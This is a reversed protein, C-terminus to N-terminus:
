FHCIDFMQLHPVADASIGTDADAFGQESQARCRDIVWRITDDISMSNFQRRSIALLDPADETRVISLVEGLGDAVETRLGYDVAVIHDLYTGRAVPGEQGYQELLESTHTVFGHGINEDELVVLGAGYRLQERLKDCFFGGYQSSISSKEYSQWM